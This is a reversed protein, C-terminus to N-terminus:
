FESVCQVFFITIQLCFCWLLADEWLFKFFSIHHAFFTSTNRPDWQALCYGFSLFAPIIDIDLYTPRGQSHSTWVVSSVGFMVCQVEIFKMNAGHMLLILCKITWSICVFQLVRLNNFYKFNYFCSWCTETWTFGDDPLWM